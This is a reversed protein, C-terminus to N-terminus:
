VREVALAIGQGVGVCMTCLARRGLASMRAVNRNDEGAQNVCGFYVEELRDWDLRPHRAMLAQLPLAGLDDTRIGALAGGYRGIPTRIGDCLYSHNMTTVQTLLTLLAAAPGAGPHLVHRLLGAGAQLASGNDNPQSGAGLQYGGGHLLLMVPRKETAAPAAPAAPAAGTWVNLYLCDESQAENQQYPISGPIGFPGNGQFWAASTTDSRRIGTWALVPQPAKWRLTGVPPAAFPVAKFLRNAATFEAAEALTGGTVAVTDRAASYATAPPTTAGDDDSDGCAAVLTALLAALCLRARMPHENM